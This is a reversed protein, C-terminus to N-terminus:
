HGVGLKLMNSYARSNRAVRRLRIILRGIHRVIGCWSRNGVMARYANVWAQQRNNVVAFRIHTFPSHYGAVVYDASSNNSM